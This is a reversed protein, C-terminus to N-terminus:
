AEDKILRMYEGIVSDSIMKHTEQSIPFCLSFGKGEKKNYERPFCIFIGKNATKVIRISQVVFAGNFTIRAFGLLPDLPDPARRVHVNVETVELPSM